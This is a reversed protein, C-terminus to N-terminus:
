QLLTGWRVVVCSRFYTGWIHVLVVLLHDNVKM